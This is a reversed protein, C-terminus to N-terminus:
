DDDKSFTGGDGTKVQKLMLGSELVLAPANSSVIELLLASASIASNTHELNSSTKKPQSAKHLKPMEPISQLTGEDLGGPQLTDSNKTLEALQM